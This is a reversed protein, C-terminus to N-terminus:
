RQIGFRADRVGHAGDVPMRSSRPRQRPQRASGAQARRVEQACESVKGAHRRMLVHQASSETMRSHTQHPLRAADEIDREVATETVRRVEGACEPSLEPHARPPVPLPSSPPLPNVRLFLAVSIM